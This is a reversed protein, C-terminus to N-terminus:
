IADSHSYIFISIAYVDRSVRVGERGGKRKGGKIIKGLRVKRRKKEGGQRRKGEERERGGKWGRGGVRTVLTLRTKM